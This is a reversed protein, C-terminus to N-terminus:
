GYLESWDKPLRYGRKSATHYFAEFFEKSRKKSDAGIPWHSGALVDDAIAALMTERVVIDVGGGKIMEATIDPYHNLLFRVKKQSLEVRYWNDIEKQLDVIDKKSFTIKM